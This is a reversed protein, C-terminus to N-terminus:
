RIGRRRSRYQCITTSNAYIGRLIFRTLPLRCVMKLALGVQWSFDFQFGNKGFRESEEFWVGLSFDQCASSFGVTELMRVRLSDCAM